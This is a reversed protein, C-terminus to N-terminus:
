LLLHAIPTVIIITLITREMWIVILKPVSVPIDTSLIVPITASFFLIASVSVTAIIFKTILPGGTVLLSPLFMEAIEMSAASFIPLACTQVGTVNRDRIGDEAQLFFSHRQQQVVDLLLASDL